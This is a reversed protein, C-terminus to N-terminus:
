VTRIRDSSLPHSQHDAVITRGTTVMEDDTLLLVFLRHDGDDLQGGQQLLGLRHCGRGRVVTHVLLFERQVFQVRQVNREGNEGDLRVLQIRVIETRGSQFITVDHVDVRVSPDFFRGDNQLRIQIGRPIVDDSRLPQGILLLRM